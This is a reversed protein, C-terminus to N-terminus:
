ARHGAPYLGPISVPLRGEAVAEGWLAAALAELSPQLISYACVFTPAEPFAALDYPLRLAAVVTPVGDALLARVLEAQGPQQWANITAVIALDAGRLAARLAAVEDAGPDASMSHGEAAPHFRRVAATLDAPEYSSTDAPTLDAPRPVVVALRAGAPPRLPLLGAEDRVVTIARRAAEAALAQHEACGVVDLGPQAQAAAWRQLEGVRGAAAALDDAALRGERAAALLRQYVRTEQAPAHQLLLLDAGARAAEECADLLAAEGQGIAEMAMSDTVSVGGFGLRGRLLDKLIPATVTAPLMAGGALAPVALHASMILRAGAAIAARFPPLEVAELRALDYPLAALEHHTDAATDGHGPFHKATAAVGAAQLGEVLAATLEAVLAPDEGLARAGIVPNAPNVNVDAVPAYNVNVGIAALERGVAEGVRRALAPDGVAGLALNGPFATTGAIAQLQGTEQDACILLAPIGAARAAAQLQGSLARVQGPGRVNTHRFLTVGAPRKAAIRALLEAPAEAGAFSLLLRAGVMSELEM